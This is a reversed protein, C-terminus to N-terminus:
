MNKKKKLKQFASAILRRLCYLLHEREVKQENKKEMSVLSFQSADFHSRGRSPAAGDSTVTTKTTNSLLTLSFLTLCRRHIKELIVKKKTTFCSVELFFIFLQKLFLASSTRTQADAAQHMMTRQAGCVILFVDRAAPRCKGEDHVCVSDNIKLESGRESRGAAVFLCVGCVLLHM